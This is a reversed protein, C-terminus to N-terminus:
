YYCFNTVWERNQNVMMPLVVPLLTSVLGQCRLRDAMTLASSCFPGSQLTTVWGAILDEGALLDTAANIREICEGCYPSFEEADGEICNDMDCVHQEGFSPLIINAMGAWFGPLSQECEVTDDSLPCLSAVLLKGTGALAENTTLINVLAVGTEKCNQCTWAHRNTDPYSCSETVELDGTKFCFTREDETAYRCSEECGFQSTEVSTEVRTYCIGGVTKQLPCLGQHGHLLSAHCVTLVLLRTMVGALERSGM